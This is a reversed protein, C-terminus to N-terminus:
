TPITPCCASSYQAAGAIANLPNRLEHAVQASMQGVAGLREADLLRRELNRRDAIDRIVMVVGLHEGGEGHVAAYTTEWRQEKEKIISHAPGGDRGEKLWAMVRGLMDHTAQPHCDLLEGGPPSSEYMWALTFLLM